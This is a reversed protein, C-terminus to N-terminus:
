NYTSSVCSAYSPSPHFPISSMLLANRHCTRSTLLYFYISALSPTFRIRILYPSPPYSPVGLCTSLPIIILLICQTGFTSGLSFPQSSLLRRFSSSISPTRNIFSFTDDSIVALFLCLLSSSSFSILHFLNV